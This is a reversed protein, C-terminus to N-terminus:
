TGRTERSPFRSTRMRTGIAFEMTTTKGTVIADAARLRAAMVADRRESRDVYASSRATTPAEVTSLIDKIAVPEDEAGVALAYLPGTLEV